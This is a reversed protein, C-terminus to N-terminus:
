LEQRRVVTEPDGAGAPDLGPTREVKSGAQAMNGTVCAGQDGRGPRFRCTAVVEARRPDHSARSGRLRSPAPVSHAWARLM